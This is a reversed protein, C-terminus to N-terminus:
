EDEELKEKEVFVKIFNDIYADTYLTTDLEKLMAKINDLFPDDIYNLYVEKATEILEANNLNTYSTFYEGNIVEYLFQVDDSYLDEKIYAMDRAICFDKLIQLYDEEVM